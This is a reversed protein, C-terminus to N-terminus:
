FGLKTFVWPYVAVGAFTTLFGTLWYFLPQQPLFSGAVYVLGVLAMGLVWRLLRKRWEKVPQFGAWRQEMSYAAAFGCFLGSATIYDKSGAVLLIVLSFAAGAWYLRERNKVRRFLCTSIGASILGLLFGVAVDKPWHVGLYMRSLAILPCLALLGAWAWPKKSWFAMSAWFTASTQTHGSPFSHGTATEVRLSRVGEQGIPRPIRFIDKVLGNLCISQFLSFAIYEGMEKNVCWYIFTFIAVIPVQEGLITIFLFFNDLVPSAFQQIYRLIELEM